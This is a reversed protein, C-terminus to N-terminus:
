QSRLAAMPDIRTARRAPIFCAVAAVATLVLMVAALTLVAATTHLKHKRLMRLKFRVNQCFHMLWMFVRADRHSDQAQETTGFRRRAANKAEAASMGRSRYAEELFALHAAMERSMEVDLRAPLFTARIKSIFLKLRWM